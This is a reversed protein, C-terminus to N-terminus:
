IETTVPWIFSGYDSNPDTAESQGESQCAGSSCASLEQEPGKFDFEYNWFCDPDGENMYYSFQYYLATYIDGDHWVCDCDEYAEKSKGDTVYQEQDYDRGDDFSVLLQWLISGDSFSQIEGATGDASQCFEQAMGRAPLFLLAVFALGSLIHFTTVSHKM